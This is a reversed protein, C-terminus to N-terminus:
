KGIVQSHSPTPHIGVILRLPHAPDLYTHAARKTFTRFADGIPDVEFEAYVNEWECVQFVKTTHGVVMGLRQNRRGVKINVDAFQRNEVTVQVCDERGPSFPDTELSGRRSVPVCVTMLVLLFVLPLILRTM